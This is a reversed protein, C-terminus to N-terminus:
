QSSGDNNEKRPQFQEPLVSEDGTELFHMVADTEKATLNQFAWGQVRRRRLNLTEEREKDERDMRM